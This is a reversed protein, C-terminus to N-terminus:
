FGRSHSFIFITFHLGTSHNIPLLHLKLQLQYFQQRNFWALQLLPHLQTKLTRFSSILLKLNRKMKFILIKLFTECGVSRNQGGLEGFVPCKDNNKVTKKFKQAKNQNAQRIQRAERERLKNDFTGDDLHQM